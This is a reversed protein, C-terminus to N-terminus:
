GRSPAAAARRCCCSAASSAAYTPRTLRLRLGGNASTSPRRDELDFMTRAAAVQRM